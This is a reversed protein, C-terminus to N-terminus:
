DRAKGAERAAGPSPGPGADIISSTTQSGPLAAPAAVPPSGIGCTPCLSRPCPPPHASPGEWATVGFNAGGSSFSSFMRPLMGRSLKRTAATCGESLMLLFCVNLTLAVGPSAPSLPSVPTAGPHCQPPVPSAPPTGAARTAKKTVACPARQLPDAEAPSVPVSRHGWPWCGGTCPGAPHERGQGAKGEGDSSGGPGPM